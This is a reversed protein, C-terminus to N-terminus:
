ITTFLQTMGTDGVKFGHRKLTSILSPHHYSAFMQWYNLSRAHAALFRLAHHIARGARHASAGPRTALWALWAVGSGTADLYLFACAIPRARDSVIVGCTPLTERTPAEGGRDTWWPFIEAYTARAVKGDPDTPIPALTLM